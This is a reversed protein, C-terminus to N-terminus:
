AIRCTTPGCGVADVLPAGGGMAARPREPPPAGPDLGGAGAAQFAERARDPSSPSPAPDYDAGDAPLERPTRPPTRPPREHALDKTYWLSMVKILEAASIGPSLPMARAEAMVWDLASDKPPKGGNLDTLMRRVSDRGLEGAANIGYRRM